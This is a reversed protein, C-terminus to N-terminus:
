KRVTAAAVALLEDVLWGNVKVMLETRVSEGNLSYRQPGEMARMIAFARELDVNGIPFSAWYMATKSIHACGNSFRRALDPHRWFEGIPLMKLEEPLEDWMTCYEEWELVIETTVGEPLVKFFTRV